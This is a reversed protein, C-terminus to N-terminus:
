LRDQMVKLGSWSDEIMKSARAYDEIKDNQPLLFFGVSSHLFGFVTTADKVPQLNQMTREIFKDPREGRGAHIFILLSHGRRFARRTEDITLYQSSKLSGPKPSTGGQLGTDPDFCVLERGRARKFFEDFYAKRENVDDSLLRPYFRVNPLPGSREIIQTDLTERDRSVMLLDYIAPDFKRAELDGLYGSIRGQKTQDNQTMMWCLASPTEGCKTLRRLLGYKIYDYVDGFYQNKM